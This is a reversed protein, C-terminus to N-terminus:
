RSLFKPAANAPAPNAPAPTPADEESEPAKKKKRKPVIVEEEEETDSEEPAPTPAPTPAPQEVPVENLRAIRKAKKAERARELAALQSPTREQKKRVETPKEVESVETVAETNPESMHKVRTLSFFDVTKVVHLRPFM